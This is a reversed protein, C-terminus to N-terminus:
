LNLTFDFTHNSNDDDYDDTDYNGDIKARISKLNSTDKIPVTVTGTKTVGNSIDGDWSEGSDAAHQESGNFIYTGQAPYVSVDRNAKVSFYLRVFGQAKFTGDNASKYTTPSDLTYLVVKSVSVTAANWSTDTYNTSYTKAKSYNYNQYDVTIKKSTTSSEASKESNTTQHGSAKSTSNSNSSSSGKKNGGVLGFVFFLVIIALVWIWWKKYWPKVQVYTNGEEDQIKKSM